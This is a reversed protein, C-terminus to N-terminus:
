STARFSRSKQGPLPKRLTGVKPFDVGAQRGAQVDPAELRFGAITTKMRSLTWLLVLLSPLAPIIILRLSASLAECGILPVPSVAARSWLPLSRRLRGSLAAPRAKEYDQKAIRGAWDQYAVLVRCKPQWAPRELKLNCLSQQQNSKLVAAEHHADSAFVAAKVDVLTKGKLVVKDKGLSVGTDQLHSYVYLFAWGALSLLASAVAAGVIRGKLSAPSRPRHDKGPERRLCCRCITKFTELLMDGGGSGAHPISWDRPGLQPLRSLRPRQRNEGGRQAGLAEARRPQELAGDM